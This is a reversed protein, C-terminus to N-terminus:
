FGLRILLPGGDGHGGRTKEVQAGVPAPDQVRDGPRRSRVQAEVGVRRQMKGDSGGHVWTKWWLGLQKQSIGGPLHLHDRPVQKPTKSVPSPPLCPRGWLLWASGPLTKGSERAQQCSGTATTVFVICKTAKFCCLNVITWHAEAPRAESSGDKRGLGPLPGARAPGGRDATLM